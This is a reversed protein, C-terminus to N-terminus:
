RIHCQRCLGSSDNPMFLQGHKNKYAQHCSVCGMKDNPLWIEQALQSKPRSERNKSIAPYAVGIPHNAAGSTHYRIGNQGVRIGAADLRNNHCGMCQLSLPDIGTGKTMQAMAAIAHGSQQLSIGGDKMDDFFASDHCALCLDMGRKEGRLLGPRRQTFMM